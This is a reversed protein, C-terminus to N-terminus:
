NTCKRYYEIRANAIEAYEPDMDIGLFHVNEAACACGTSGSGAFPDLVIADAIPPTLLRVLWRMLEVPKVTPHHNRRASQRLYPNDIDKTRGDNRKRPELHELGHEREARSAKPCFFFMSAGGKGGRHFRAADGDHGGGAVADGDYDDRHKGGGSMRKRTGSQEDLMAAAGEDFAVNAPLSGKNDHSAAPANLAGTGWLEINPALTGTFPKRALIIPEHSPRLGTRHGAYRQALPHAAETVDVVKGAVGRSDTGAAYTGGKEATSLAASGTLTRTGTKSREVTTGFHADIAKDVAPGKTMGQAYIWELTDRIEFGAIRIAIGMLDVTRAGAFCALHGGPKLVRLCERWAEPGPVFADWSRGMFGKGGYAYPEGLAWCTIAELVHSPKFDSLGYPPDTIIVDISNDSWRGLEELCDGALVFQETTTM